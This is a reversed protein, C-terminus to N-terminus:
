VKLLESLGGASIVTKYGAKKLHLVARSSRAGSFCYLVLPQDHAVSSKKLKIQGSQTLQKEIEDVSLHFAEPYHGQDFEAQSRVDVVLAGAQILSAVEKRRSQSRFYRYVALALFASVATLTIILQQDM